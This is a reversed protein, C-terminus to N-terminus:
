TRVSLMELRNRNAEQTPLVVRLIVVVMMEEEMLILMLKLTSSLSPRVSSPKLKQMTTELFLSQRVSQSFISGGVGSADNYPGWVRIAGGIKPIGRM